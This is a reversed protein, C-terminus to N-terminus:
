CLVILFHRWKSGKTLLPKFMERLLLNQKFGDILKMFDDLCDENNEAMGVCMFIESWLHGVKKKVAKMETTDEILNGRLDFVPMSMAAKTWRTKVYTAPLSKLGKEKIVWIIHIVNRFAEFLSVFSKTDERYLLAAAFTVCSKSNDVGTFPAFVMCYEIMSFTTYFSVVDGFSAYSKRGIADEWFFRILHQKDDVEYKFFFSSCIQQKRKFNEILMQADKGRIKKRIDRQFNKFDKVSTAMNLIKGNSKRKKTSSLRTDFGSIRAYNDYFTIGQQLTDFNM